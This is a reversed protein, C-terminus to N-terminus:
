GRLRRHPDHFGTGRERSQRAGNVDAPESIRAGARRISERSSLGTGFRLRRAKTQLSQSDAAADSIQPSRQIRIKYIQQLYSEFGAQDDRRLVITLTIPESGSNPKSPVVTAKSLAPLVHGPLRVMAPAARTSDYASAGAITHAPWSFRNLSLVLLRFHTRSSIVSLEMERVGREPNAVVGQVRM